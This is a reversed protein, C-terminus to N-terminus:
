MWKIRRGAIYFCLLAFISLIILKPLIYSLSAERLFVDLYAQHSWYMPSIMALNKMVPPM